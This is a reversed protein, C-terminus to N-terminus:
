LKVNLQEMVRIQIGEAETIRIEVVAHGAFLEIATMRLAEILDARSPGKREVPQINVTLNPKMAELEEVQTTVQDEVQDVVQDAIRIVQASLVESTYPDVRLFEPKKAAEYLTQAEKKTIRRGNFAKIVQRAQATHLASPRARTNGTDMGMLPLIGTASLALSLQAWKRTGSCWPLDHRAALTHAQEALTHSIFDKLTLVATCGKPPTTRVDRSTEWHACIRVGFDALHKEIQKKVDANGGVLLLRHQATM